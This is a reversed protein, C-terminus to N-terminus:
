AARMRALSLFGINFLLRSINRIVAPFLVCFVIKVYNCYLEHASLSQTFEYLIIIILSYKLVPSYFAPINTIDTHFIKLIKFLNTNFFYDTKM